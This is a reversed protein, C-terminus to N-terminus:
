KTVSSRLDKWDEQWQQPMADFEKDAVSDWNKRTM